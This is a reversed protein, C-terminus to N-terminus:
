WESQGPEPGGARARRHPPAPLMVEGASAGRHQLSRVINVAAFRSSGGVSTSGGGSGGGGGGGSGGDGGGGDRMPNGVMFVSGPGGSGTAGAPGSAVGGAAGGGGGSARGRVGGRAGSRQQAVVAADLQRMEEKDSYRKAKDRAAAAAFARRM